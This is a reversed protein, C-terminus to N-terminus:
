CINLSVLTGLAVFNNVDTQSYLIFNGTKSDEKKERRVSYHYINQQGSHSSVVFSYDNDWNTIDAPNPYITANESIVIKAKAGVTSVDEPITVTIKGDVISGTVVGGDSNPLVLKFSSIFNDNGEFNLDNDSSCGALCLAVFCIINFTKLFKNM